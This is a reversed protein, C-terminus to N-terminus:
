GTLLRRLWAFFGARPKEQPEQENDPQQIVQDRFTQFDQWGQQSPNNPDLFQDTSCDFLTWQNPNAVQLLSSIPDGDGRVHLMISDVPDDNGINFEISFGDNEYIGWTPDSWDVDPLRASILDRVAELSGLPDPKHDDPLEDLSRPPRGGFNFVMVDWSM